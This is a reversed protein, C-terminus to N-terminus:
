LVNNEEHSTKLADHKHVSGHVVFRSRNGNM